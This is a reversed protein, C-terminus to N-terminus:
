KQDDPRTQGFRHPQMLLPSRPASTQPQRPRQRQAPTSFRRPPLHTHVLKVSMLHRTKYLNCVSPPAHQERSTRWTDGWRWVILDLRHKSITDSSLLQSDRISKGLLTLNGISEYIEGNAQNDHRTIKSVHFPFVCVAYTILGNRM